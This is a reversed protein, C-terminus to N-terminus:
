ADVSNWQEIAEARGSVGLKLYISRVQSKVTNLSVGRERAIEALSLPSELLSALTREAPTLGQAAYAPATENEPAAVRLLIAELATLLHRLEPNRAVVDEMLRRTEDHPLMLFPTAWTGTREMILLAAEMSQRARRTHGLRHQALARRLLVPTFTRLCHGTGSAVCADTELLLERERGLRLLATARQMSFCIGHGEPNEYPALVALAQMDDGQAIYLDSLICLLFHRVMRHSASRLSGHLLERAEARGDAFRHRLLKVMVGAARATYTGYADDRHALAMAEPVAALREIDCRAAATLIEALFVLYATEDVPWGASVFITQAAALASEAAVYEGNIAHGLAMVSFARYRLAPTDAFLLSEAGFRAAHQASGIAACYEGVSALLLARGSYSMAAPRKLRVGDFYRRIVDSGDVLADRQARASLLASVTQAMADTWVAPPPPLEAEALLALHRPIPIGHGPALRAATTVVAARLAARADISPSVGTM